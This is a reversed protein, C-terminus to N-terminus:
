ISWWGAGSFGCGLPNRDPSFDQGTLLQTLRNPWDEPENRSAAFSDGLILIDNHTFETTM